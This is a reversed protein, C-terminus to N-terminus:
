NVITDIKERNKIIEVLADAIATINNAIQQNTYHKTM